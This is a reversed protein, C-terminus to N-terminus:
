RRINELIGQEDHEGLLIMVEGAPGVFCRDRTQKIRDLSPLSM